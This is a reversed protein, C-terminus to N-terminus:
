FSLKHGHWTYYEMARQVTDAEEEALLVYADACNPSIALADHALAIRKAPNTTEFARYMLEQARRLNPDGWQEKAGIQRALEQMLGEMVRRDFAPLEEDDSEAWDLRQAPQAALPIEGAPYKVAVAIMGAHTPADVTTEIPKYDGRRDPKLYDRV